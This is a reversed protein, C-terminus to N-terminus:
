DNIRGIKMKLGFPNEIEFKKGILGRILKKFQNNM